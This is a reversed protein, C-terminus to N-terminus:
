LTATVEDSEGTDTPTYSVTVRARGGTGQEVTIGDILMAGEVDVMQRLAAKVAATVEATFSPAMKSPWGIGMTQLASSSGLVTILALLVRQRLAPMQALQGSVPDVQYSGTAPNLFRSGAAGSPPATADVPTGQGFPGSGFAM